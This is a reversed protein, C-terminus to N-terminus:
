VRPDLLFFFFKLPEEKVLVLCCPIGKERLISIKVHQSVHAM